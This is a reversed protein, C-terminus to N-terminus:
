TRGPKDNLQQDLYAAAAAIADRAAPLAGAFRLFGHVVGPWLDFRYRVGAAALRGCMLLTDDLLPDLAAANLYLPPLGALDANLPAAAPPPADHLAGLFNRWYWQMSATSLLFSGDGNRKHSDTEFIPAFCGYFLAATRPLPGGSDRRAVLAGLALNAGASDGAVATRSGDFGAGLGGGEVFALAALVDDLPGPFPCEPALRYDIGLVACSSLAALSQMVPGHSDISGFTWGGGHVFLIVPLPGAAQPRYLRARQPGTAGPVEFDRVEAVPHLDFLWAKQNEMFVRRAEDMPLTRLDVQPGAKIRAVVAEQHPDFASM